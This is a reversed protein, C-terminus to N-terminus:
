RPLLTRFKHNLSVLNSERRIMPNGSETGENERNGQFYWFIVKKLGSGNEELYKAIWLDGQWEVNYPSTGLISPYIELPLEWGSFLSFSGYWYTDAFM